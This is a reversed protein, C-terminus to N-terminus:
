EGPLAQICRVSFGDSRGTGYMNLGFSKDFTLYWAFSNNSVGGANFSNDISSTWYNGSVGEYIPAGATYGRLGSATLKIPSNFLADYASGYQTIEAWFEERTPLRFGAPCPNNIGSVGQWLNDNQPNRWDYPKVSTAIFNGNSPVDNSSLTTTTSSTRKEHGDTLRGWQYLDGYAEADTLSTAARSAGLNRDMWVRGTLSTVTPVTSVPKLEIVVSGVGTGTRDSRSRITRNFAAYIDNNRPGTADNQDNLAYLYQSNLEGVRSPHSWGLFKDKVRLTIDSSGGTLTYNLLPNGAPNDDNAYAAMSSNVIQMEADNSQTGSDGKYGDNTSSDGINVTWGTSPQTYRVQFSAEKYLSPNAAGDLTVKVLAKGTGPQGATAQTLSQIAIEPISGCNHTGQDLNVSCSVSEAHASIVSVLGLAVASMCSVQYRKM